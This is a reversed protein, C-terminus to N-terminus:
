LMELPQRRQPPPFSKDLLALDEESLEIGAANRNDRIHDASSSKPIAIIDPRRLIWALAIQAATASHRKAVEGLVKDGLLRGQEIPSYAMLPIGAQRCQGMLDFEIGRRTLNYLVQNTACAKGGPLSLLESMDDVDFNSVGWAGIKGDEMLMEFAEITESLPYRGTWHLLYLDIHDTGLRKLSRHCADLTGKLSANYPLVKSVLFVEDRRSAIADGVVIEAGGDAYMEATDILTMGLDLGLQLAASEQNMRAKSEGMYWTGQGLRPVTKGNPLKTVPIPPLSM